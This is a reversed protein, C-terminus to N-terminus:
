VRVVLPLSPVEKREKCCGKAYQISTDREETKDQNSLLLGKLRKETTM